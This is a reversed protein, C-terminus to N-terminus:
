PGGHGAANWTERPTTESCARCIRSQLREHALAELAPRLEQSAGAFDRRAMAALVKPSAALEALVNSLAAVRRTKAAAVSAIQSEFQEEFLQQYAASFKWEALLLAATTVAAVVPFVFLILKARFTSFWTM